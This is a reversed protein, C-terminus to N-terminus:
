DEIKDVVESSPLRLFPSALFRILSSGAEESERERAEYEAISGSRYYKILFVILGSAFCVIAVELAQSM